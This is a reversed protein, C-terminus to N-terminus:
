RRADRQVAFTPVGMIVEDLQKLGCGDAVVKCDTAKMDGLGRLYSISM